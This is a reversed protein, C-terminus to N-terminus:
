SVSELRRPTRAMPTRLVVPSGEGPINRGNRGGAFLQAAGHPRFRREEDNLPFDV